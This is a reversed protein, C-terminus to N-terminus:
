LVNTATSGASTAASFIADMTTLCNASAVFTATVTSNASGMTFTTPNTSRSTLTSGSGSVTWYSFVYNDDPHATLTVEANSALSAGTAVSQSNGDVGTINGNTASYTLTYTTSGGGGSGGADDYEITLSKIWANKSASTVLYYTTGTNNSSITYSNTNQSIEAVLTGSSNNGTYVNINTSGWNNGNAKSIGVLKKGSPITITMDATGSKGCFGNSNENSAGTVIYSSTWTFTVNNNSVPSTQSTTFSMTGSTSTRTQGMVMKPQTMMMIAALAAILITFKKKM